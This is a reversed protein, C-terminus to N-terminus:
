VKSWDYAKVILNNESKLDHHYTNTTTVTDYHVAVHNVGKTFIGHTVYLDKRNVGNETLINALNIFTAGGDCIDDFIAVNKGKVDGTLSYSVIKGGEGRIKNAVFVDTVGMKDAIKVAKKYAGADPAIIANYKGHSRFIVDQWVKTADVVYSNHILAPAVDSHPDILKVSQLNLGNIISAMVSMSLSEGEHCVRDQRAYLMYPITLHIAYGFYKRRLADITMCLAMVSDSDTLWAVVEINTGKENGCPLSVGVEGSPFKWQKVEYWVYDRICYKIM